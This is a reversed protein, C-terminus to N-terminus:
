AKEEELLQDISNYGSVAYLVDNLTEVSYGAVCTVIDLTERSVGLEDELFNWIRAEESHAKSWESVFNM